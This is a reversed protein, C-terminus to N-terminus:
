VAVGYGAADIAAIITPEDLPDATITVTKANLDVEVATVGAVQSVETEIALKCHACSVGPVSYTTQTM